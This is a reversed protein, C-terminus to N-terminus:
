AAIGAPLEVSASTGPSGPALALSGGAAEVRVVHSALGIHGGALRRSAVEPDLGVGDDSVVLHARVGDFGLTVRVSSARAHSAANALLERATRHLLADATTRLGDPWGSTDVEATFGGRAAAASALDRLAAPLGARALVAPHLDAVTSRLLRVSEDLARDLRAFAEADAGPGASDRADELDMRAALVYQLAGDHLHESMTRRERQELDTLEGLLDGRAQVLRGITDVRSRQIRSLGVCGAAVGAAALTRLLLSAWPEQNAEQTAIGAALYVLVAPVVVAACVRPRLQTAALVPVLLFGTILVDATWSQPDHVGTLLTLAAIVALDGLLAVWALRVPRDGRYRRPPGGGPRHPPEGGPQHPPEGGPQHPPEGGPQHPPGGGYGVWLAVALAFFAYGAAIIACALTGRTPPVVAITLGVFAVLVWRLTVQLRVGRRAHEVAVALVQSGGPLPAEDPRGADAPVAPGGPRAPAETM